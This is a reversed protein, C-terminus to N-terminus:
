KVGGKIGTLEYTNRRANVNHLNIKLYFLDTSYFKHDFLKSRFYENTYTYYLSFENMLSHVPKM